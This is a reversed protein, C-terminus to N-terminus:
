HIAVPLVPTDFTFGTAPELATAKGTLEGYRGDNIIRLGGSAGPYDGALSRVWTERPALTKVIASGVPAGSAGFAFVDVIVSRPSGNHLILVTVQTASNNFRPVLYTTERARIRYQDSTDCNLGCAAGGVRIFQDLVPVDSGWGLFLADGLGVPLGSQVSQGTSGVRDLALGPLLDNVMGDVVVEYSSYAEIRIPFWDQDPLGGADELDHLQDSGHILENASFADDDGVATQDWVDATASPAALCASALLAVGITL